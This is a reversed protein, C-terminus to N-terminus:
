RLSSSIIKPLDFISNKFGFSANSIGKDNDLVSSIDQPNKPILSWNQYDELQEILGGVDNILVRCNYLKAISIIGSQTAELYPLLVHSSEMILMEFDNATLWRNHLHIKRTSTEALKFKGQGAILIEYDDPVHKLYDIVKSLGKYKRIRGPVLIRKIKTKSEVLPLADLSLILNGIKGNFSTAVHHSLFVVLKARSYEKLLHQRTPWVEGLHPRDDHIISITQIRSNSLKKLLYPNWPHSMIFLLNNSSGKELLPIFVKAFKRRYSPILLLFGNRPLKFQHVDGKLDSFFECDNRVFISGLRNESNWKISLDRLLRAGGGRRGLYILSISEFESLSM